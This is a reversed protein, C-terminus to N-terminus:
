ACSGAPWGSQDSVKVVGGTQSFLYFGKGGGFWIGHSDVFVGSIYGVWTDTSGKAITQQTTPSTLITLEVTQRDGAIDSVIPSRSADVGVVGVLHGPSYLWVQNSGDRLDLREIQNTPSGPVYSWANPDSRNRTGRWVTEGDIAGIGSIDHVYTTTGTAIDFKWLAAVYGEGDLGLYVANDTYEFVHIGGIVDYMEKPLNYSQAAGSSVDVIRLYPQGDATQGGQAYHSEDASVSHSDVPLWRAFRRDYYRGGDGDAPFTMRGSPLDIFAGHPGTGDARDVYIPLRCITSPSAQAPPTTVTTTAATNAATPQSQACGVM